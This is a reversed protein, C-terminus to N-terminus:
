LKTTKFHIIFLKLRNRFAFISCDASFVFLFRFFNAKKMLFLTYFATKTSFVPYKEYNQPWLQCMQQM